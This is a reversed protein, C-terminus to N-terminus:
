HAVPATARNRNPLLIGLDLRDRLASLTGRPQDLQVIAEAILPAISVVNLLESRPATLAVTDTVYMSDVFRRGNEDVAKEIRDVGNRSFIGHTACVVVRAAGREKLERAAAVISGGTDIMDDVLVCTRGAIVDNGGSLTVTPPLGPGPRFKSMVMLPTFHGSSAEIQRAFKEARKSGGADPSVVVLESSEQALLPAVLQNLGSLNEFPGDFFGEVQTAHLDVTVIQHAGMAKLMDTVARSSIPPRTDAKRDQRSYAFYPLVVTIRRADALKLAQVLLLTELLTENVPAHMNAMVFAHKDRVSEHIEIRTESNPFKDVIVSSPEAGLLKGLGSALTGRGPPMILMASESLRAVTAASREFAAEDLRRELGLAQADAISVEQFRNRGRYTWAMGPTPPAESQLREEAASIVQPGHADLNTVSRPEGRVTVDIKEISIDRSLGSPASTPTQRSIREASLDISADAITRLSTQVPTEM